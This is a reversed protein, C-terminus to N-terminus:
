LKATSPVVAPVASNGGPKPTVASAPLPAKVQGFPFKVSTTYLTGKFDVALDDVEINFLDHMENEYLFACWYVSSISPVWPRDGPVHLRLNKLTDEVEFSYTLELHNPFRTAGIQVLRAGSQRLERVSDLLADM